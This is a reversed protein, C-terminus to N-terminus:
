SSRAYRLLLTGNDDLAHVLRMPTPKGTAGAIIRGSGPGAVLPSLTLCVEDVLDALHLAGFLRPGGECLIQGLGHAERLETVAATLDVRDVGHVLVDAVEALADRRDPDAAAHTIVIPRAPADALAPHAPDLDLRGSVVILRPYAALGAGVRWTRRAETLKVARYNEQRLTGAGVLLGDCLMRLIAFLRKDAETGLGGSLGDITVAGDVSTVFNVRLCSRTRDPAYLTVLTDADIDLSPLVQM